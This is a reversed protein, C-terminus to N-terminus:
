YRIGIVLVDDVQDEEGKWDLFTSLLYEGIEGAPKHHIEELMKRFNKSLFKKGDPNIQDYYGDSFLYVMSGKAAPIVKDTFPIENPHIGIPNKVAKIETLGEDTVYYVPNNAGSCTFTHNMSDILVLSMDMGDQSEGEVGTQRLSRKVRTRLENLIAAPTFKGNAIRELNTNIIESLLSMGLMSMLAGPVGHGTCDAACVLTKSEGVQRLWYFDGSVIDRPRYLIFSDPILERTHKSPPLTATQIRWAYRISDEIATKQSELIAKQRTIEDRQQRLLKNDHRKVALNRLIIAVIALLMIAGIILSNRTTQLIKRDKRLIENEKEKKETEFRTQLELIQNQKEMSMVSDKLGSYRYLYNYANRFDKLAAWTHSLEGLASLLVGPSKIETGTELAENLLAVAKQHQAQGSLIRASSILVQAYNERNGTQLYLQKAKEYSVSASDTRGTQEYLQGMSHCIIALDTKSGLRTGTQLARNYFWIARDLSDILAATQGLSIYVKLVGYDNGARVFLDVAEINYDMSRLYDGTGYYISAISTRAYAMLRLDNILESIKQGELYYFLASDQQSLNEHVTGICFLSTAVGSQRGTKRNIDLSKRYLSLAESYRSQNHALIGLNNLAIATGSLDGEDEYIALAKRNNEESIDYEGKVQAINGLQVLSGALGKPFDLREAETRAKLAYEASEDINTVQLEHAIRIYLMVRGTDTKESHLRQLLSDPKGGTQGSVQGAIFGAMILLIINKM